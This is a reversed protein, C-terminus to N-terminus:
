RPDQAPCREHVNWEGLERQCGPCGDRYHRADEASRFIFHTFLAMNRLLFPPQLNVRKSISHFVKNPKRRSLATRDATRGQIRIYMRRALRSKHPSLCQLCNMEILVKWFNPQCSTNKWSEWIQNSDNTSLTEEKFGMQLAFQTAAEGVLLTHETHEM